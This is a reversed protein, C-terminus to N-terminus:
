RVPSPPLKGQRFLETYTPSKPDHPDSRLAGVEELAAQIKKKDKKDFKNIRWAVQGGYQTLQHKNDRFHCIACGTQDFAAELALDNQENSDHKVYKAELEVYFPKIAYVPSAVAAVGLM